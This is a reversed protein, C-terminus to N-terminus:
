ENIYPTILQKWVLYANGLLHLKDNTYEEKLCGENDIFSQHLDIYAINAELCIKKIEENLQLISKNNHGLIVSKGVPLVSQIYITTDPSQKKVSDIILQYSSIIEAINIRFAIDNTGICIFLKSPQHRTIENIRKLVGASTDGGIGRNLITNNEFLENWHAGETISDGLFIIAGKKEPCSRFMSLRQEHRVNIVYKLIFARIHKKGNMGLYLIALLFFLNLILSLIYIANM